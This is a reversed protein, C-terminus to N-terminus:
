FLVNLGFILRCYNLYPPPQLTGMVGCSTYAFVLLYFDIFSFFRKVLNVVCLGCKVLDSGIIYVCLYVVAPSVHQTM